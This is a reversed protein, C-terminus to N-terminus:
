RLSKKSMTVAFVTELQDGLVLKRTPRQSFCKALQDGCFLASNTATVFNEFPDGRFNELQDGRVLQRIPRRPWTTKALQDGFVVTKSNTVAFNNTCFITPCNGSTYFPIDETPPMSLFLHVFPIRPTWM